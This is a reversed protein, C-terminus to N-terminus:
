AHIVYVWDNQCPCHWNVLSLHLATLPFQSPLDEPILSPIHRTAGPLLHLSTSLPYTYRTWLQWLWIDGLFAPLHCMGITSPHSLHYVIYLLDGIDWFPSFELSLPHIRLLTLSFKGWFPLNDPFFIPSFYITPRQNPFPPKLFFTRWSSRSSHQTTNQDPFSPRTYAGFTGSPCTLHQSIYIKIILVHNATRLNFLYMNYALPRELPVCAM